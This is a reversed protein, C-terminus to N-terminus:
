RGAGPSELEELQLLDSRQAETDEDYLPSMKDPQQISRNLYHGHVSETSLLSLVYKNLDM